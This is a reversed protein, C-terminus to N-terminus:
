VENVARIADRLEAWETWPILDKNPYAILGEAVKLLRAFAIERELRLIDCFPEHAEPPCGCARNAPENIYYAHNDM